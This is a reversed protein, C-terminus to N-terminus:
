LRDIIMEIAHSSIKSSDSSVSLCDLNRPRKKKKGLSTNNNMLINTSFNFKIFVSHEIMLYRNIQKDVFTRKM